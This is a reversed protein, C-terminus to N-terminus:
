NHYEDNQLILMVTSPIVLVCSCILYIQKNADIKM